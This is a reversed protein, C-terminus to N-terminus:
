VLGLEVELDAVHRERLELISAYRILPKLDECALQPAPLPLTLM